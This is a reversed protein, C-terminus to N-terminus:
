EVLCEFVWEPNYASHNTSYWMTRFYQANEPVEITKTEWSMSPAGTTINVGSIYKENEDYFACGSTSGSVTTIPLTIALTNYGSVDLLQSAKWNTDVTTTGNNSLVRKGEEWIFLDTIDGDQRESVEVNCEAFLSEDSSSTVKIVASGVGVGNVECSKGNPEITIYENGSVIEWTMEQSAHLPIVRATITKTANLYISVNEENIEIGSAIPATGMTKCSFNDLSIYGTHKSAYWMVRIYKANAPVVIDHVIVDWGNSYPNQVGSIYNKNEDYFAYGHTTSANTVAPQAITLVDYYSIDVYDTHVYNNDNNEGGHTYNIANTLNFEFMSTIDIEGFDTVNISCEAEFGGDESIAKVVASGLQVGNITCVHNNTTMSINEEGSVIEWTVKQNSGLPLVRATITQVDNVGVNCEYKDLVISSASINGYKYGNCYFEDMSASAYWTTRFYKANLPVAVDVDTCVYNSATAPKNGSIYNKNEDYFAYGATAGSASSAYCAFKLTNYGEVDIFDSALWKSNSEVVGTQYSINKGSTWNMADSFDVITIDDITISCMASFGGDVTTAKIIAEGNQLGIVECSTGNAVITINEEGSVIEWIVEKNSTESPLINATIYTPYGKGMTMINSSLSIGTVPINALKKFSFERNSGRGIKITKVKSNAFDIFVTDFSQENTTGATGGKYDYSSSFAIYGKSFTTSRDSHCHGCMIGIITCKASDYVEDIANIIAQGATGISGSGIWISHTVIMVNWGYGLELIRNKMWNLQESTPPNYNPGGESYTSDIIIYRMKTANDDRYYDMGNVVCYDSIKRYAVDWIGNAPTSYDTDHNGRMPHLQVNSDFSNAFTEWQSIMKDVSGASAIMDGGTFVKRLSTRKCLENIVMSSKGHNNPIHTDTLFILPEIDWGGNKTITNIESIKSELYTAWYDPLTETTESEGGGVIEINGDGVISQGNITKFNPLTPIEDKTALNSIDQHETLYDGKPQKGELAIENAAIQEDMANLQAAKLTDGSKFNQKTYGM